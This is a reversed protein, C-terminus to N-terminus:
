GYIIDVLFNFSLKHSQQSLLSSIFLLYGLVHKLKDSFSNSFIKLSNVVKSDTM